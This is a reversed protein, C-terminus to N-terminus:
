AHPTEKTPPYTLREGTENSWWGIFKNLWIAAEYSNKCKAPPYWEMDYILGDDIGLATYVASEFMTIATERDNTAELAATQIQYILNKRAESNYWHPGIPDAEAGSRARSAQTSPADAGPPPSDSTEQNSTEHNTDITTPRAGMDPTRNLIDPTRNLIDPTRNLIDPSGTLTVPQPEKAPKRSEKQLPNREIWTSFGPRHGDIIDQAHMHVDDPEAHYADFLDSPVTLRYESAMGARRGFKSGQTMKVILGTRELQELNRRITREDQGLNDTLRLLGPHIQGGSEADAYTALVLALAKLAVPKLQTRLIIREWEFRGLQYLTPTTM